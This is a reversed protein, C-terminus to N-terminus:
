RCSAPYGQYRTCLPMQCPARNKMVAQKVKEFLATIKEGDYFDGSSILAKVEQKDAEARMVDHHASFCTVDLGNTSLWVQYLKTVPHEIVGAAYQRLGLPPMLM